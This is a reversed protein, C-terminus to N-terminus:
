DAENGANVMARTADNELETLFAEQANRGGNSLLVIDKKARNVSSILIM